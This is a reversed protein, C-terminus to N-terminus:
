AVIYHFSAPYTKASVAIMTIPTVNLAHNSPESFTRSFELALANSNFSIAQLKQGHKTSITPVTGRLNMTLSSIAIPFCFTHSAILVLVSSM